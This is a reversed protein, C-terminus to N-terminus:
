CCPRPRLATLSTLLPLAADEDDEEEDDDLLPDDDEDDLSLLLLPLLELLSLEGSLAVLFGLHFAGDPVPAAAALSLFFLVFPLLLLEPTDGSPFPM